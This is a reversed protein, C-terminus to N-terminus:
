FSCIFKFFFFFTFDNLEFKISYKNERTNSVVARLSIYRDSYLGPEDCYCFCNSCHVFWSWWSEARIVNFNQCKNEGGFYNGDDYELYKYRM